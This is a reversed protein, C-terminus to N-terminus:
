AHQDRAKRSGALSIAGKSPRRDEGYTPQMYGDRSQAYIVEGLTGATQMLLAAECTAAVRVGLERTHTRGYLFVALQARTRQPIDAVLHPLTEADARYLRGLAETPVPCGDEFDRLTILHAQNM